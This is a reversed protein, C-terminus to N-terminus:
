KGQKQSDKFDVHKCECGSNPLGFNKPQEMQAAPTAPGTAGYSYSESCILNRTYDTNGIDSKLNVIGIPGLYIKKEQLM